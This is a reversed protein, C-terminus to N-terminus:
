SIGSVITSATAAFAFQFVWLAYSNGHYQVGSAPEDFDKTFGSQM